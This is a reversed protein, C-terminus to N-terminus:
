FDRVDLYALELSRPREGAVATRAMIAGELTVRALPSLAACIPDAPDLHFALLAVGREFALAQMAKCFATLAEGDGPTQQWVDFIEWMRLAEGARPIRPLRLIRRIPGIRGGLRLLAPVRDVVKAGLPTPDWVSAAVRPPDGVAFLGVVPSGPEEPAFQRAASVLPVLDYRQNQAATAALVEARAAGALLRPSLDPRPLAPVLLVRFRGIPFMACRRTIALTARNDSLVHLYAYDVLPRLYAEVAAVLAYSLGKGRQEPIVRVDYVYGARVPKGAIRVSKVSAAAVGVAIGDEEAVIIAGDDYVRSRTFFDDRQYHFRLGRGQPCLADIACLRANDENTARRIRLSM